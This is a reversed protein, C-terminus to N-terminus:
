DTSMQFAELMTATDFHDELVEIRGNTITFIQVWSVDFSRGTERITSRERGKVAVRAGDGIFEQASFEEVHILEGIMAFFGRIQEHGVFQGALPLTTPGHFVLLADESMLDIAKNFEGRSACTYFQKVIDVSSLKNEMHISRFSHCALCPSLTASPGTQHFKRCERSDCGLTSPLSPPGSLQAPRM